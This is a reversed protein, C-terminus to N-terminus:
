RVFVIVDTVFDNLFHFIIIRTQESRDTVSQVSVNFSGLLQTFTNEYLSITQGFETRVLEAATMAADM